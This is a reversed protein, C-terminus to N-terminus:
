SSVFTGTYCELDRNIRAAFARVNIELTNWNGGNFTQWQPAANTYWFTAMQHAGHLFDSKAVLHGKSLFYDNTLHIFNEASARSGLLTTMTDRQSVRRYLNTIDLGSNDSILITKPFFYSNYIFLVVYRFFTGQDWDPRAVGSQSGAADRGLTFRTFFTHHLNTDHCADYLDVLGSQIRFGTKVLTRGGICNGAAFNVHVPWRSCTLQSFTHPSGNVTFDTGGVCVATAEQPSGAVRLFNGSGPCALRVSQGRGFSLLGASNIARISATTGPTVM